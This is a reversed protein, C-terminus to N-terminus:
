GQVKQRRELVKQERCGSEMLFRTVTWEVFYRTVMKVNSTDKDDKQLM